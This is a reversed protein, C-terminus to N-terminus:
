FQLPLPISSTSPGTSYVGNGGFTVSLARNAPGFDVFPFVQKAAISIMMHEKLNFPGPNLSWQKGFLTVSRTPLFRAM